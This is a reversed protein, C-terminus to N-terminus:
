EGLGRLMHEKAIDLTAVAYYFDSAPGYSHVDTKGDNHHLIVLVTRTEAISVEGDEIKSAMKRLMGPIDALNSCPIAVVKESM